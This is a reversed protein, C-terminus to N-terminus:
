AVRRFRTWTELDFYDDALEILKQSTTARYGVVEVRKGLRQIREVAPIFDGDGSVLIATDYTDALEVLDLALEVDLNAKCSGDARKIVEKSVIQCDLHKLRLLLRKQHQNTFDIGTYFFTQSSSSQRKLFTLFDAYDPPELGLQCASHYINASDIFIAVRNTKQPQNPTHKPQRSPNIQLSRQQFHQELKQQSIQLNETQHTLNDLQQQLTNIQQTLDGLEKLKFVKNEHQLQHLKAIIPTLHTKTLYNKPSTETQNIQTELQQIQTSLSSLSQQVVTTIQQQQQQQALTLRHQNTRQMLLLGLLPISTFAAQQSIATFATGALVGLIYLTEKTKLSIKPPQQLQRPPLSMVPQIFQKATTM